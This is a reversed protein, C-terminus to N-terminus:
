CESRCCCWNAIARTPRSCRWVPYIFDMAMRSHMFHAPTSALLGAAILGWRESHFLRAAVFYMLLVDLTGVVVSPLRIVSGNLPLVKLFLATVYVLVPHFWVREGLTPMEFDLPLVHGDLDRGTSAISEAQLAFMVEDRHLHPPTHELKVGYVLLVALVLLRLSTRTRREMPSIVFRSALVGGTVASSIGLGIPVVQLDDGVVSREARRCRPQGSM